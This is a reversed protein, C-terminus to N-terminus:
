APQEAPRHQDLEALEALAKARAVAREDELAEQVVKFKSVPPAYGSTEKHSGPEAAYRLREVPTGGLLHEDVIADADEAQVGAYWVAEPYVVVMPGHGCQNLCGSKNIRIDDRGTAGVRKKMRRFLADPDGDFCCYPGNTCVFVHKAYQSM